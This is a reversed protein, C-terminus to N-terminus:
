SNGTRLFLQLLAMPYRSCPIGTGAAVKGKDLVGDVRLKGLLVACSLWFGLISGPATIPFKSSDM